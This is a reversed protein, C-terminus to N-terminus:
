LSPGGRGQGGQCVRSTLRGADADAADAPCPRRSRAEPGTLWPVQHASLLSARRDEQTLGPSGAWGIACGKDV